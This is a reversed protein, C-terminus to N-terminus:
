SPPRGLMKGPTQQVNVDKWFRRKLVERPKGSLGKGKLAQSEKLLEAQRRRRDLRERLESVSPQPPAPPPGTAVIPLPNAPHPVSEHLFCRQREFAWIRYFPSSSTALPRRSFGLARPSSM